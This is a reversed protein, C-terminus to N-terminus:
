DAYLGFADAVADTVLHVYLVFGTVLALKSAILWLGSVGVGIVVLHSLIREAPKVDEETFINKQKFLSRAPQACVSKAASWDGRNFRSIVFHDLDIFVGTFALYITVLVITTPM